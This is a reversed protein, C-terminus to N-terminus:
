TVLLKHPFYNQSPHIFPPSKFNKAKLAKFLNKEDLEPGWLSKYHAIENRLKGLIFMFQWPEAGEDLKPKRLFHLILNFRRLSDGRGTLELIPALFDRAKTNAASSGLHHRPGRMFLEASEAEVAAVSQM